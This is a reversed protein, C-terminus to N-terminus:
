GLQTIGLSCSALAHHSETWQAKIREVLLVM